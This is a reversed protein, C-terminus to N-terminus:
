RAGQRHIVVRVTRLLILLDLILSHNKIYYLDFELKQRSEAVSAGYPFCVQAWGTLGPKVLHRLAYFPITAELTSTFEPREPRPGIFSMDGRLINWLQPLEDIRTGRLVRGVATVRPDGRAAWQAGSAEADRRMTRFKYMAFTRGRRGVREQRYFVGGRSTIAVLLAALGALPLIAVLLLLSVLLDMLRKLRLGNRSHVIDFGDSTLFWLQHVRELPVRGSRQEILDTLDTVRAGGLRARMLQGIVAEPLEQDQAMVIGTWPRGLFAQIDDWSGACPESDGLPRLLTLRAFEPLALLPQLAQWSPGQSVILLWQAQGSRRRLWGLALIRSGLQWASFVALSQGLVIRGLPGLNDEWGATLYVVVAMSIATTAAATLIRIAVERLRTIRGLQYLGVVYGSALVAALVVLSHWSALFRPGQVGNKLASFFWTLGALAVVDGAALVTGVLTESILASGARHRATAEDTM